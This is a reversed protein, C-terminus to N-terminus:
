PFSRFFNVDLPQQLHSAHPYLEMVYIANGRLHRILDPIEHSLHGDFFLLAPADAPLANRIRVEVVGPVFVQVTPILQFDLLPCPAGPPHHLRIDAMHDLGGDPRLVHLVPPADSGRFRAARPSPPHDLGAEDAGWRSLHVTARQSRKARSPPCSRVCGVTVHEGNEKAKQITPRRDRPSCVSAVVTGSVSLFAEDFNFILPARFDHADYVLKLEAFWSTM